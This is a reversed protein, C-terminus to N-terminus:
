KTVDAFTNVKASEDSLWKDTKTNTFTATAPKVATLPLITESSMVPGSCTYSWSWDGSEQATYSSGVLLGTLTASVETGSDNTGTLVVTWEKEEGSSTGDAVKAKVTFIASEGSKLGNKAIVLKGYVNQIHIVFEPNHATALGSSDATHACNEITCANRITTTESTIDVDGVKVTVNGNVDSVSTVKTGTLWADTTYILTLVPESGAMSDAAAITDGHKWVTAESAYNNTNYYAIPDDVEALYNVASDKFTLVPKFVKVSATVEEMSTNSTGGNTGDVTCTVTYAKDTTIGEIGSVVEDGNVWTGSTEGANITYTAIVTDGDKVTYTISAYANNTGDVTYKAGDLVYENPTALLSLDAANTLYINVDEATPVITAVPVDVTPQVFKEIAGAEIYVGSEEDNTPVANGGLFSEKATVTFEVVIKKGYFGDDRKKTSVYNANFDFGTINVTDGDFTVANQLITGEDEWYATTGDYSTCGYTKVTVESTNAPMDFYPSVIDKIVANSGLSISPVSIEESIKEFIATLSAADSAALYYGKNSGTGGNSMSQANPYNSSLYHLFKNTRAADTSEDSIDLSPDADDLMGISYVTAGFDNKLDNSYAIANNASGMSNSWTGTGPIGDTFIVVVRNRRTVATEAANDFVSKADSLGYDIYTGGNSSLNEIAKNVDTRNERIDENLGIKITSSSAFGVVAVRHDVDNEVANTYVEDVFVKAAAELAENKTTTTEYRSYFQVRGSTVDSESTMPEYRTGWHGLFHFGTYWGDSHSSFIGGTCWSVRVFSDNDKVYYNQNTSLNYVETYQYMADAMSGSEDLVLVIDTPVAQTSDTVTGTTYAELKINYNDGDKVTTKSLELGNDPSLDRRLSFMRAIPVVDVPGNALGAVDTYNKAPTYIMEETDIGNQKALDVFDRESMSALINELHANLEVSLQDPLMDMYKDAEEQTMGDFCNLVAVADECALLNEYFSKAAFEDADYDAKTYNSIETASATISLLMVLALLLATLRSLNKM